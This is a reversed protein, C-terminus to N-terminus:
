LLEILLVIAVVVGLGALLKALSNKYRCGKFAEKFFEHLVGYLWYAVKGSIRWVSILILLIIALIAYAM